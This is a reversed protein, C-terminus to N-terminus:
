TRDLAQPIRELNVDCSREGEDSMMPPNSSGGLGRTSISPAGRTWNFDRM